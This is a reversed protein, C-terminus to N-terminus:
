ALVGTMCLIILFLAASVSVIIGILDAATSEKPYKYDPSHMKKLRERTEETILQEISKEM